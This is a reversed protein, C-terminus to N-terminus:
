LTTTWKGRTRSLAKLVGNDNLPDSLKESVKADNLDASLPGKVKEM